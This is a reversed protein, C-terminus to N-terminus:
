APAKWCLQFTASRQAPSAEALDATGQTQSVQFVPRMGIGLSRLWLRHNALEPPLERVSVTLEATGSLEASWQGCDRFVIQMARPIWRGLAAPDTGLLKVAPRIFGSWLPTDFQAYVCDAM